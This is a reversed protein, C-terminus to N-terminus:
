EKFENKLYKWDFEKISTCDIIEGNIDHVHDTFDDPGVFALIVMHGESTAKKIILQGMSGSAGVVIFKQKPTEKPLFINKKKKM